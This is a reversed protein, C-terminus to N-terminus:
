DINKEEKLNNVIKQLRGTVVDFIFLIGENIIGVYAHERDYKFSYPQGGDVLMQIFVDYDYIKAM